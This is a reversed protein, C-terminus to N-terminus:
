RPLAAEERSELQALPGAVAVANTHKSNRVGSSSAGNSGNISAAAATTTSLAGLEIDGATRTSSSNDATAAATTTTTSTNTNDKVPNQKLAAKLAPLHKYTNAYDM